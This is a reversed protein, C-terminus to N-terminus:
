ATRRRRALVAMAALVLGAVLVSLGVGDLTPM